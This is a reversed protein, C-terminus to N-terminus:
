FYVYSSLLFLKFIFMVLFYFYKYYSNDCRNWYLSLFCITDLFIFKDDPNKKWFENNEHLLILSCFVLEVMILM